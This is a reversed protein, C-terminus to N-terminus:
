IATKTNPQKLITGFQQVEVSGEDHIELLHEQLSEHVSSDTAYSDYNVLVPMYGDKTKIHATESFFLVIRDFFDGKPLSLSSSKQYKPKLVRLTCNQITNWIANHIVNECLFFHLGWM